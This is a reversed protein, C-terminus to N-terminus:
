DERNRRKKLRARVAKVTKYTGTAVLVGVLAGQPVHVLEKAL